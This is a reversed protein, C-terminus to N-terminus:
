AIYSTKPINVAMLGEPGSIRKKNKFEIVKDEKDRVIEEIIVFKENMGIFSSILAEKKDPDNKLDGYKYNKLFDEKSQKGKGIKMWASATFIYAIPKLAKVLMPLMERRFIPIYKFDGLRMQIIAFPKIDGTVQVFAKVLTTHLKIFEKSLISYEKNMKLKKLEDQIQEDVIKEIKKKIEETEPYNYNFMEESM